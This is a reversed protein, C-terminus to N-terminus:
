IDLDEIWLPFIGPITLYDRRMFDLIEARKMNGWCITAVEGSNNRQICLEGRISHACLVVGYIHPVFFCYYLSQPTHDRNNSAEVTRLKSCM